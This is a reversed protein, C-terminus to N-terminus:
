LGFQAMRQNTIVGCLKKAKNAALWVFCPCPIYRRRFPCLLSSPTGKRALVWLALLASLRTLLIAFGDTPPEKNWLIASLDLTAHFFSNNSVTPILVFLWNGTQMESDKLHSHLWIGQETRKVEQREQPECAVFALMLWCSFLRVKRNFPTLFSFMAIAFYLILSQQLTKGKVSDLRRCEFRMAFRLSVEAHRERFPKSATTVRGWSARTTLAVGFLLPDADHLFHVKCFFIQKEKQVMLEILHPQPQTTNLHESNNWAKQSVFLFCFLEWMTTSLCCIGRCDKQCKESLETAHM